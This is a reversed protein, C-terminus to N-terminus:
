CGKGLPCPWSTSSACSWKRMGMDGAEPCVCYGQKSAGSSDLYNGDVNCPTCMAVDCAMTSQPAMKPCSADLAAPIKYCAYDGDPFSCGTQEVYAGNTCTESKFGVSQPGCTKYCLQSDTATCAGGKTPAGASTAPVESCLPSFNGSSAAPMAAGGASGTSDARGASSPSMSAAAKGTGTGAQGGSSTASASSGASSKGGSANADSKNSSDAATSSASAVAPENSGGCGVAALACVALTWMRSVIM